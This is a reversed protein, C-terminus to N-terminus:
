ALEAINKDRGYEADWDSRFKAVAADTGTNGVMKWLLEPALTVTHAGELLVDTIQRTNRFSAALIRASYGRDRLFRAIEGCIEAGSFGMDDIRNVYPAVFSAGQAAALFAQAASHIATATFPVGERRLMGMAQLGAPTVPIKVFFNGSFRERMAMADAYISEATSGMVQAHLLKEEGILNRVSRIVQFFDRHERVVITPCTTVGALPFVQMAREIERCDATDILLFM